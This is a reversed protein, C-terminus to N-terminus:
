KKYDSYSDTPKRIIKNASSCQLRRLESIDRNVSMISATNRPTPVTIKSYDSKYKGTTNNTANITTNQKSHNSVNSDRSNDTHNSDKALSHNVVQKHKRHAMLNTSAQPSANSQHSKKKKHSRYSLIFIHNNPLLSIQDGNELIAPKGEFLNFPNFNFNAIM